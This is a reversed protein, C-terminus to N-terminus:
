PPPHRPGDPQPAPLGTLLHEGPQSRLAPVLGLEDLHRLLTAIRTVAETMLGEPTDGRAQGTIPHRWQRPWQIPRGQQWQGPYFLHRWRRFPTAPLLGLLRALFQWVPDGYRAQWRAHLDLAESLTEGALLGQPDFLGALLEVAATRAEESLLTQLDTTAPRRGQQLLWLDLDTEVQYHRGMDDGALAYVFPHLVSDAEIHTAIGLLCAREEPTPQPHRTLYQLLPAYSHGSPDHFAAALRHATERHPGRLIHLLTDPLVAGVLYAAEQEELLQRTPRDLPLRRVAEGALWWHTLEKPM